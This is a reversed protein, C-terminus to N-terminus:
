WSYVWMTNSALAKSPSFDDYIGHWALLVDLDSNYVGSLDTMPPPVVAGSNNVPAWKGTGSSRTYTLQWLGSIVLHISFKLHSDEFEFASFLLVRYAAGDFGVL